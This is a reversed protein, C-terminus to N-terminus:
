LTKKMLSRLRTPHPPDSHLLSKTAYHNEFAGLNARQDPPLYDVARGLRGENSFYTTDRFTTIVDDYRTIIWGGVSKSWYVPAESRLQHLIPYPNRVFDDSILALDVSEDLM